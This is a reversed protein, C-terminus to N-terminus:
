RVRDADVADIIGPFPLTDADVKKEGVTAKAGSRYCIPQGVSLDAAAAGFSYLLVSLFVLCRRM